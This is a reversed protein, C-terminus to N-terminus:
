NNSDCNNSEDSDGKIGQYLVSWVFALVVWPIYFIRLNDGFGSIIVGIFTTYLCIYDMRKDMSKEKKMKKLLLIIPILWPVMFIILGIIGTQSFLTIYEGINAISFKMLGYKQIEKRWNAIEQNGRVMDEPIYSTFYLSNLGYGVGILPAEKGINWNTIYISYRSNNSRRTTGSVSTINNEIYSQVSAPTGQKNELQFAVPAELKAIFGVALVMSFGTVAVLKIIPRIFRKGSFCFFLFFFLFEEGLVLITATRAKTMFVFFMLLCTTSMWFLPNKGKFINIWLLPMVFASYIGFHSPEIFISRMQTNYWFLPPYHRGNTYLDHVFPTINALLNKAVSNGALYFIEICSYGLIVILSCYIAKKLIEYSKDIDLRIFYYLIFSFGFTYIVTLISNKLIRVIFWIYTLRESSINIGVTHLVNLIYPLKAIQDRPGHVIDQYYPLSILGIVDGIFIFLLYVGIFRLIRICIFDSDSKKLKMIGCILLVFLPYWSAKIAFGGSVTNLQLISPIDNFCLFFFSFFLLISIKNEKIEKLYM